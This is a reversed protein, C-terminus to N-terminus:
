IITYLCAAGMSSKSNKRSQRKQQLTISYEFTKRYDRELKVGCGDWIDGWEMFYYEHHYSKGSLKLTLMQNFLLFM